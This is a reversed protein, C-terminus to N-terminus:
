GIVDKRGDGETSWAAHARKEKPCQQNVGPATGTPKQEWLLRGKGIVQGRPLQRAPNDQPLAPPDWAGKYLSLHDSLLAAQTPADGRSM